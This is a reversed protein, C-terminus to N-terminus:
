QDPVGHNLPLVFVPGTVLGLVYVSVQVPGPPEVDCDAVTVTAGAAVPAEAGTTVSVAVGPVMVGPLAAVNVQDEVLAAEHAAEPAQVPVLAILPECDV